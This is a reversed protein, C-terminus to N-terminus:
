DTSPRSQAKSAVFRTLRLGELAAAGDPRAHLAVLAKVLARARGAPLRTGVTCLVAVPIKPSAAVTELEAAFPLSAVGAGQAGDLLLAVNEGASARRLASLVQGGAVIRADGPIKGWAGLARERVFEPAYGALSFIEWGALDAASRVRGKKAVLSWTEEDGAAKSAAQAIPALRLASAHKVYFPWPVLALAADPQALRELGARETEYYVARLADPPWGAATTAARAFADLSPQAEATTGPYGPACFVMTPSAAPAKGPAALLAALALSLTLQM